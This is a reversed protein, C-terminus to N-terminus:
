IKRQIDRQINAMMEVLRRWVMEMVNMVRDADRSLGHPEAPRTPEPAAIPPAVAVPPALASPAVGDPLALGHDLLTNKLMANARQLRGVESDFAVREDAALVCAWGLTRPRCTAVEGTQRDLRLYGDDLRYFAFRPNDFDAPRDPLPQMDQEAEEQARLPSALVACAIIVAVVAVARRM